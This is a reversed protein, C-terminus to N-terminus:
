LSISLSHETFLFFYIGCCLFSIPLRMANSTYYTNYMLKFPETYADDAISQALLIFNVTSLMNLIYLICAQCLPLVWICFKFDFIFYDLSIVCHLRSDVFIAFFCVMLLFFVM